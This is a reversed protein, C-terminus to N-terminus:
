RAPSLLYFQDQLSKPEKDEEPKVTCTKNHLFFDVQLGLEEVRVVLCVKSVAVAVFWCPESGEAESSSPESIM